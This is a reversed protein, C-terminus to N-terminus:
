GWKRLLASFIINSRPYIAVLAQTTLAFGWDWAIFRGDAMRIQKSPCWSVRLSQNIMEREKGLWASTTRYSLQSFQSALWSRVTSALLSPRPIPASHLIRCPPLRTHLRVMFEHFSLKMACYFKIDITEYKRL